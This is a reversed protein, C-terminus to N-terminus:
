GFRLRRQPGYSISDLKEIARRDGFNHFDARFITLDDRSVFRSTDEALSFRVVPEDIFKKEQMEDIKDDDVIQFWNFIRRGLIASADGNQFREVESLHLYKEPNSIAETWNRPESIDIASEDILFPLRDILHPLDILVNMPRLVARELWKILRFAAFDFHYPVNLEFQRVGLSRKLFSELTVRVLDDATEADLDLFEFATDSLRTAADASLGLVPALPQELGNQRFKESLKRGLECIMPLPTWTTPNFSGDADVPKWIAPNGILDADLNLDAFSDLHGRLGLDFQSGKFQNLVAVSGCNSYSRVLRAIGEGTTRSGDEDLHVLDYDVVLVDTTDFMSPHETPNEKKEVAVKRRILSSIEDRADKVTAVDVNDSVVGRIESSWEQAMENVDDCVRVKM